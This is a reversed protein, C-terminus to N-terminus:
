TELGKVYNGPTFGLLRKFWRNMHSQDSFGASIATEALPMGNRLLDRAIRTRLNMLYTHPSLGTHNRFTRIFYYPSRGSITSLDELSITVSLHERMYEIARDVSTSSRSPGQKEQWPGAAYRQILGTFAETVTSDYALRDNENFATHAVLLRIAMDRDQIVTEPFILNGPRGSQEEGALSQMFLVGPYFMRYTWGTETTARGTHVEGPNIIVIQGEGIYRTSGRYRYSYSGKEIVGLAFSEHFHPTFEHTVYTAHLLEM